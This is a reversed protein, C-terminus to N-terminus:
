LFPAISRLYENTFNFIAQNHGCDFEIVSINPLKQLDMIDEKKCVADHLAQIIVIKTYDTEFNWDTEINDPYSVVCDKISNIRSVIRDPYRLLGDMICSKIYQNEPHESLYWSVFFTSMSFSIINFQKYETAMYEIVAKLDMYHESYILVDQLCQFDGSSGFGRYDFMWVEHGLSNLVSAVGLWEGMNGADGYALLIPTKDSINGGVKWIAIKCGDETIVSDEVYQLNFDDPHYNYEKLPNVAYSRSQFFIFVLLVTLYCFCSKKM